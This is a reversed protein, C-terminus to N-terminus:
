WPTHVHPLWHSLTVTLQHFQESLSYGNAAGRVAIQRSTKLANRTYRTWMAAMAATMQAEALKMHALEM